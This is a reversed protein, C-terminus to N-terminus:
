NDEEEEERQNDAYDLLPTDSPMGKPGKREADTPQPFDEAVFLESQLVQELNHNLEPLMDITHDLVWLLDLLEEDFDWVEPRIDDLPSSKRGARVKMRYGLWSSVIELGSVSYEWVQPRVNEFVGTGVSLEQTEYSYSFENPYGEPTSPTGFKCRAMGPPIRGKKYGEPVFREGYTHLWLLRRGLGVSNEFLKRDETIPVRPGPITLEDWFTQVYTPSALLAYCYAFLAEPTIRTGYQNYLVELIGDTINANTGEKDCWLPIIDKAGRNCFCDMDPLLNTGVVAPGDGLVKTLLSIMYVQNKSHASQLTPRHRDCLRIDNIAWQRDFSRYSFPIIQTTKETDTLSSLPALVKKGDISTLSKTIKRAGTEKLAIRKLPNPLSLLKKWRSELITKNEGIPWTRKYQVGNEQWPFLNTLEPWEWYDSDGKPLFVDQWGCLCERWDIDKFSTILELQALKEEESGEIKSYYINAPTEPQPTDYRIGIAIAVPTQIAFVNETKRAGHNDGELDIIWLDDFTQRMIQRVGAFGPGRLYSSATIFSVIGPGTKTEFVKWLAWRWFYIYDNYLNKAHLGLGSETLPDLFDDLLSENQNSEGFRVWGGKRKENSGESIQQRDYPPNGICVLIPTEGKVKNARLHEEGLSKYYFPLQPPPENPSELTNTLYLKVGNDPVQGNESLIKQTLRLHAVAYPGVLIEFAHMNEAAITAYRAKMGDGKLEAVQNLAHDIAALLYTGTGAAPDLTTVHPDVFSFEYGFQDSLLESILRIQSHVIPIPTYYVGRDKRMAPDYEALFDEYFYLWLEGKSREELAEVDIAAIIRELLSVPIDIDSRANTDGLIKLTDALLRHGAQLTATAEPITLNEAGSIQALLLAYTLTQAYADAFEKDDAEPFLYRRWDGALSRLNSNEDQLSEFVDERLYRCIPALMAALGRPSSPVQPEWNIFDQLLNFLLTANEENITKAGETTIDGPFKIIQGVRNGSRYLAWENGDTYILNPLAKFKEWQQKNRGKLKNTDAGYGPAKLEIHGAILSDVTVGIDPRGSFEDVQVETVTILKKGVLDGFNKLLEGVSPKLQDEPNFDIPLSFKEEVTEALEQLLPLFNEM